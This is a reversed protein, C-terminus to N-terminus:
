LFLHMRLADDLAEMLRTPVSGIREGIRRIGVSRIQEPQVSRWQSAEAGVLPDLDVIRFSGRRM